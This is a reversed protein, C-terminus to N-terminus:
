NLLSENFDALSDLQTFATNMIPHTKLHSEPVAIVRSKSALGAIVGAPSDEIVLCDEPRVGMKKACNIFVAPHPKGYEETEASSIQVFFERIKLADLVANILKKPSSSAVAIPIGKEKLSKLTSMVGPLAEGKRKVHSIMQDVIMEELAKKSLNDWPFQRHWYEIVEDIRYGITKLCDEETLTIGVKEFCEIEAVRWFPESNIIIGDMDFIVAKIM